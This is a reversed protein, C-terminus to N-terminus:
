EFIVGSQKLVSDTLPRKTGNIIVEGGIEGDRNFWFTMKKGSFSLVVGDRTADKVYTAKVPTADKVDTATLVNLFRDDASAKQPKVSLRWAGTYPGRGDKEAGKVYRDWVEEALPFNMGNSWYEKGPGGIVEQKANRPLLTQCFLRGEGSDARMVGKGVKPQEKTHLLWEKEYSPDAAGVRDYVIFYDPYVFVFQRVAETCKDGYCDTADSAIYTFDKGTEFAKVKAGNLKV